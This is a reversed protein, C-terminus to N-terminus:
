MGEQTYHELRTNELSKQELVWKPKWFYGRIRVVQSFYVSHGFSIYGFNLIQINSKVYSRNCELLM